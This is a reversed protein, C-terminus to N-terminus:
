SVSPPHLGWTGFISAVNGLQVAVLLRQLLFAISKLDGTQLTIRRALDRIFTM